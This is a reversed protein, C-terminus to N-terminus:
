EKMIALAKKNDSTSLIIKAPCGHMCTTCYIYEINIDNQALRESINKLSGPRNEVEVVIVDNEKSEKFGYKKLIDIASVNDDTVFLLEAPQGLTRAYGAVAEVNIGHNVLFSTIKALVGVENTVKVCIEKGQFARKIM